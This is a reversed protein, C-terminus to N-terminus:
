ARGITLPIVLYGHYAPDYSLMLWGGHIHDFPGFTWGTLADRCAGHTLLMEDTFILVYLPRTDAAAASPKDKGRLLRDLRHGLAEPSIAHDDPFEM